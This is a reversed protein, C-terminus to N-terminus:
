LYFMSDQLNSHLGKGWMRQAAEFVRQEAAERARRMATGHIWFRAQECVIDATLASEDYIVVYHTPKVTGQLGAHAQLYFDFDLM